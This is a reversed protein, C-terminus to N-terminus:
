FPMELGVHSLRYRDGLERSLRAINGTGTCHGLVFRQIGYKRLTSISTELGREGAFGLHTGGVVAYVDECKTMSKAWEIINVVGSHACGLLILLGKNTEVVISQDDAIVDPVVGRNHRMYRNDMDPTLYDDSRPVEGTLYVGPEIECQEQRLVFRAGMRELYDRRFPIGNYREGKNEEIRFRHAFIDPHGLVDICRHFRLVEDLGGTHDAHGHSLVIRNLRYLDKQACVANHILTRGRGTDFLINSHETELLAAFGHEGMAATKGAVVNDVLITLLGTAMNTLRIIFLLHLRRGSDFWHLPNQLRWPGM